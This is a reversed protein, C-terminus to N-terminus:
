AVEAQRGVDLFDGVDQALALALRGVAQALGQAEAVTELVDQDAFELFPPRAVLTQGRGQALGPGLPELGADVGMGQVIVAVARARPDTRAPPRTGPM